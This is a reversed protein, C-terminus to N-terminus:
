DGVQTVKDMKGPQGPKGREAQVASYWEQPIGCKPWGGPSTERTNSYDQESKKGRCVQEINLRTLRSRTSAQWVRTSKM